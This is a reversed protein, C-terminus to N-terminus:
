EAGERRVREGTAVSLVTGDARREIVTVGPGAVRAVAALAVVHIFDQVM